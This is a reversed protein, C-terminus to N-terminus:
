KKKGKKGKKKKKARPFPNVMLFDGPSPYKREKAMWEQDGPLVIAKELTSMSIQFGDRALKEKIRWCEEFQELRSLETNTRPQATCVNVYGLEEPLETTGIRPM